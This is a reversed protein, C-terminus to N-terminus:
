LAVLSGNDPPGAAPDDAALALQALRITVGHCVVLVPGAPPRAPPVTERARWEAVGELVRAQQDAFREGGPFGWTLDLAAFRAFGEPDQAIVDEFTRDTWDGADTEAFRADEVPELGLRAGVIQATEWARALPSAVLVAPGLRASAEALQHAQERGRDDLPVPLHGQFRGAANYATRGHRALWVM